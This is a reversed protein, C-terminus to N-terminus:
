AAEEGLQSIVIERYAPCSSLLEEHSGIGVVRGEDLVIIRDAHLITSVRQAVIMVTAHRTEVRLAAR